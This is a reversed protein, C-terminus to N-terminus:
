PVWGCCGGKAIHDFAFDDVLDAVGSGMEGGFEDTLFGSLSRSEGASFDLQFAAEMVILRGAEGDVRVAAIVAVGRAAARMSLVNEVVELFGIIHGEDFGDFEDGFAGIETM